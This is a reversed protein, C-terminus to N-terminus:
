GVHRWFYGEVESGLYVYIVLERGLFGEAFGGEFVCCVLGEWSPSGMEKFDSVDFVEGVCWSLPAEEEELELDGGDVM